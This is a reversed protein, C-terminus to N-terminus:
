AIPIRVTFLSGRGEESEVMVEGDLRRMIEKVIWLGLGTGEIDEHARFFKTFLKPLHEKKIGRGTDEVRVEVYGWGPGRQPASGTPARRAEIRVEGGPHNFKIANSILNNFVEQLKLEDGLAQPLSNFEDENFKLTVEKEQAMPTLGNVSIKLIEGLNVSKKELAIKYSELRAVDLLDNVLALLRDASSKIIAWPRAADPPLRSALNQREINDMAWGLVSVPTRLEHAAIFIFEDKLRAVEKAAEIERGTAEELERTRQRVREELNRAYDHILEEQRRASRSAHWVLYLMAAYLFLIGAGLRLLVGGEVEGSPSFIIYALVALAPSSVILFRVFLSPGRPPLGDELITNSLKTDM